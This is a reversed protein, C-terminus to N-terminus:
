GQELLPELNQGVQLDPILFGGVSWAAYPLTDPVFANAFDFWSKM